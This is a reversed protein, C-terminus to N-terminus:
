HVSKIEGCLFGRQGFDDETWENMAIKGDDIEYKNKNLFYVYEDGEDSRSM